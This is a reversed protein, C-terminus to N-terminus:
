AILDSEKLPGPSLRITIERITTQKGIFILFIHRSLPSLM